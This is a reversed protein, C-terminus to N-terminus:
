LDLIYAMQRDVEMLNSPQVFLLFLTWASLESINGFYPQWLSASVCIFFVSFFHETISFSFWSFTLDRFGFSFFIKVLLMHDYFSILHEQYTLDFSTQSNIVSNLFMSNMLSKSLLVPLPILLSSIRMSIPQISFQLLDILSLNETQSNSILRELLNAIFHTSFHYLLQVIHVSVCM